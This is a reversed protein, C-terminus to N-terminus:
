LKPGIREDLIAVSHRHAISINRRNSQTWRLGLLDCTATFLGRIDASENSFFWRPYAYRALRGSPLRTEFRNVTRCGDSHLLGRLFYWPHDRVIDNQWDVLRILRQHKRGPGHQPFAELWGWWYCRVVVAASNRIKGISVRADPAAIQIAARAEAIILPYATDLVIRLGIARPHMYVCGDGLYLGLLYSYSADDPPSWM